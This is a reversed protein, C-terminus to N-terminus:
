LLQRAAPSGSKDGEQDGGNDEHGGPLEHTQVYGHRAGQSLTSCM